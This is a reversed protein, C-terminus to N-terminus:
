GDKLLQGSSHAWIDLLMHFIQSNRDDCNKSVTLYSQCLIKITSKWTVNDVNYM